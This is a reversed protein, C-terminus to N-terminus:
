FADTEVEKSTLMATTQSQVAKDGDVDSSQVPRRGHDHTSAKKCLCEGHDGDLTYAVHM